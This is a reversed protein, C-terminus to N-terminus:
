ENKNEETYIAVFRDEEKDDYRYIKAICPNWKYFLFDEVDNQCKITDCIKEADELSTLIGLNKDAEELLTVLIFNFGEGHMGGYSFATRRKEFDFVKAIRDESYFVMIAGEKTIFAFKIFCEDVEDDKKWLIITYCGAINKNKICIEEEPEEEEKEKMPIPDMKKLFTDTDIYFFRNVSNQGHSNMQHFSVVPNFDCRVLIFSKVNVIYLNQHNADKPLSMTIYHIQSPDKPRYSTYGHSRFDTDIDELTNKLPDKNDPHLNFFIAEYKVEENRIPIKPIRFNGLHDLFSVQHNEMENTVITSTLSILILDTEYPEKCLLIIRNNVNDVPDQTFIRLVQYSTLTQVVNIDNFDNIDGIVADGMCNKALTYGPISFDIMM